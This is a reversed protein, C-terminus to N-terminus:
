TTYTFTIYVTMQIAGGVIRTFVLPAYCLITIVYIIMVITIVIIIIIIIFFM